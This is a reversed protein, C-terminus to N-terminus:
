YKVGTLPIFPDPINVLMGFPQRAEMGSRLTFVATRSATLHRGSAPYGGCLLFDQLASPLKGVAGLEDATLPLLAIREVRGALSQTVGAILDFQTSGTLM